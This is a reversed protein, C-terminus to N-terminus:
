YKFNKWNFYSKSEHNEKINKIQNQSKDFIAIAERYAKLFAWVILPLRQFPKIEPEQQVSSSNQKLFNNEIREYLPKQMERFFLNALNNKIEQNEKQEFRKDGSLKSIESLQKNIKTFEQKLDPAKDIVKEVLSHIKTQQEPTLQYLRKVKSQAIEKKLQLFEQELGYVFEQKHIKEKYNQKLMMKMEFYTKKSQYIQAQEEEGKLSNLYMWFKEINEKKLKGQPKFTLEGNQSHINRKEKEFLVLHVHPLETDAHITAFLNINDYPLGEKKLFWDLHKSLFNMMDAQSYLKHKHMLNNTFSFVMDWVFQKDDLKKLMSKAKHKSITKFDHKGQIQFLGSNIKEKSLLQKYTGVVDNNNQKILELMQESSMDNKLCASKRTLYDIINRLGKTTYFSWNVPNNHEDLGQHANYKNVFRIVKFIIQDKKSM